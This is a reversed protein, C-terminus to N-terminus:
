WDSVIVSPNLCTIQQLHKPLLDQPEIHIQLGTTAKLLLFMKEFM